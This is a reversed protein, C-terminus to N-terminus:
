EHIIVKTGEEVLGFLKEVNKLQMNICGHSGNGEYSHPDDFLEDDQWWADHFGYESGIFGIWYDIDYDWTPGTINIDQLKNTVEYEGIPTDDKGKTGSIIHCHLKIEGDDFFTLMQKSINVYVATVGEYNKDYEDVLNGSEDYYSTGDWGTIIPEPEPEVVPEPEPAPPEINNALEIAFFAMAVVALLGVVVFITLNKKKNKKM